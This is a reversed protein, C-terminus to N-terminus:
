CGKATSACSDSDLLRRGSPTRERGDPRPDSSSARVVLWMAAIALAVPLLCYLMRYM